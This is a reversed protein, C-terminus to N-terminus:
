KLTSTTPHPPRAWKSRHDRRRKRQQQEAAGGSGCQCRQALAREAARLVVQRHALTGRRSLDDVDEAAPARLRLPILNPDRSIEVAVIRSVSVELEPAELLVDAREWEAVGLHGGRDASAHCLEIPLGDRLERAIDDEIHACEAGAQVSVGGERPAPTYASHRECDLMTPIPRASSARAAYSFGSPENAASFNSASRAAPRRVIRVPYAMNGPESLASESYRKKRHAPLAAVAPGRAAAVQCGM